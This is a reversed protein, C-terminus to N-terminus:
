GAGHLGDLVEARVTNHDAYAMGAGIVFLGDGGDLCPGVHDGMEEVGHVREVVAIGTREAGDSQGLVFRVEFMQLWGLSRTKPDNRIANMQVRSADTQRVTRMRLSQYQHRIRYHEHPALIAHVLPVIPLHNLFPPTFNRKLPRIRNCSPVM